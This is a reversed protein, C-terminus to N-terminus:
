ERRGYFRVYRREGALPPSALEAYDRVTGEQLLGEFRVALALTIRPLRGAIAAASSEPPTPSPHAAAQNRIPIAVPEMVTVTQM